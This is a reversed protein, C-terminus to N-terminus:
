PLLTLSLLNCPLRALVLTRLWLQDQTSPQPRRYRRQHAGGVAPPTNTRHRRALTLQPHHKAAGQPVTVMHEGHLPNRHNAKVRELLQQYYATYRRQSPVRVGNGDRTRVKNYYEIAAAADSFMGMRLLLMCIMLGSRGKGAQLRQPVAGPTLGRLWWAM